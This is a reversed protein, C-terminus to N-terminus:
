HHENNKISISLPSKRDLRSTECAPTMSLPASTPYFSITFPTKQRLLQKASDAPVFVSISLNLIETLGLVFLYVLDLTSM